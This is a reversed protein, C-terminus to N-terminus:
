AMPRAACSPRASKAPSPSLSPSSSATPTVKRSHACAFAMTSSSASSWCRTSRDRGIRSNDYVLVEDFLGLEADRMLRGGDPREAFPVTGSVGDDVYRASSNASPIPRSRGDLAARSPSPKRERQEDSSVREYTVVRRTTPLAELLVDTM